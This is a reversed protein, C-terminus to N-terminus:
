SLDTACDVTVASLWSSCCEEVSVDVSISWGSLSLYWCWIDVPCKSSAEDCVDSPASERVTGDVVSWLSTVLSEDSDGMCNCADAGTVSWCGFVVDGVDAVCAPDWSSVALSNDARHHGSDESMCSAAIKGLGLSGIAATSCKFAAYNM